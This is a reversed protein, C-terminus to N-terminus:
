LFGELPQSWLSSPHDSKQAGLALTMAVEEPFGEWSPMLCHWISVRTRSLFM